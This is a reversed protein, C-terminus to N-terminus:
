RNVAEGTSKFGIEKNKDIYAEFLIDTKDNFGADFLSLRGIKKIFDRTMLMELEENPVTHGTELIHNIAVDKKALQYSVLAFRHCDLPNKESCMLVISYGKKIGSIVRNIGENFFITQRVKNFDVHGASNQLDRDTFRAGLKDGMYLYIISENMLINKITGKNFQPNRASFPSSRIDILCNIKHEKLLGIFKDVSHTSHGITFCTLM